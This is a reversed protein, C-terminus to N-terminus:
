KSEVEFQNDVAHRAVKSLDATEFGCNCRWYRTRALGVVMFREWLEHIM